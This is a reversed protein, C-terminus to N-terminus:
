RRLGRNEWIVESWGDAAEPSECDMTEGLPYAFDQRRIVARSSRPPEAPAPNDGPETM